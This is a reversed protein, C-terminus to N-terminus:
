YKKLAIVFDHGYESDDTYLIQDKAHRSIYENAKKAAAASVLGVGLVPASAGLLGAAASEAAVGLTSGLVAGGLGGYLLTDVMAKGKNVKKAYRAEDMVAAKAARKSGYFKVREDAEKIDADIRKKRETPDDFREIKRELHRGKKTQNKNGYSAHENDERIRNKNQKNIESQDKYSRYTKSVTDKISKKIVGWKMGKVGYHFLEDPKDTRIVVYDM